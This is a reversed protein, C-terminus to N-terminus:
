ILDEARKLGECIKEFTEYFHCLDEISIDGSVAHNMRLVIANIEQTVRIGDETLKIKQRYNNKTQDPCDIYQKEALDAIIRSIQAKDVDCLRALEARTVGNKSDYIKRMCITHASGLGYPIMGKNKIKQLSKAASSLYTSFIELRDKEFDM